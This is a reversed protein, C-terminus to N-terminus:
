IPSWTCVPVYIWVGYLYALRNSNLSLEAKNLLVGIFLASKDIQRGTEGSPLKIYLSTLVKKSLCLSRIARYLDILVGLM